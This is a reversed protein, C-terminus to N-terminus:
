ARTRRRRGLLCAGVGVLALGSPEPVTLVFAQEQGNFTGLGVIQGSNNIGNARTLVWGSSPDILTNLDVLGSGSQWLFPYSVSGDRYGGVVQGLDNIDSASIQYYNSGPTTGIQHTGASLGHAAAPLWIFARSVTLGQTTTQESYGVIEGSLNMASSHASTDGSLMALSTLGAPKGYAPAPLWLCPHGNGDFTEGAIQGKDNIDAHFTMPVNNTGAPLGYAATPLWVYTSLDYYHGGMQGVNNLARAGGGYADLMTLQVGASLGYAPSPLWLASQRSQSTTNLYYSVAVQGQDNMGGIYTDPYPQGLLSTAWTTGAPLGHAASPLWVFAQYRNQGSVYSSTWGWVEGANNIGEVGRYPDSSFSGLNTVSYRVEAVVGEAAWALITTCGLTLAMGRSFRSM